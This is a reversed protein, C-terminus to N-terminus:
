LSRRLIKPEHHDVVSGDPNFAPHLDDVPGTAGTAGEVLQHSHDVSGTAGTTETAGAKPKELLAMLDKNAEDRLEKLNPHGALQEVVDLLNGIAKWDRKM